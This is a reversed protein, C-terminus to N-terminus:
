PTTQVCTGTANSWETQIEWSDTGLNVCSAYNYECKDAIEAGGTAYWADIHADTITEMFEHAVGDATAVTGNSYTNCGLNSVSYPSCGPLDAQNPMYAIEFEVGNCTAKDHWACYSIKPANSTFVIYLTNPDPTAVLKCVEAALTSSSPASKPPASGDIIAGGYSTTATAGRMYQNATRLYTSGNLGGLLSAMGSQLDSPFDGANGWYIAVTKSTALVTGGHDIVNASKKTSAAPRAHNPAHVQPGSVSDDDGAVCASLAVLLLPLFRM